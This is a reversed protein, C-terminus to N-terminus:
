QKNLYFYMTMARLTGKLESDQNSTLASNAAAVCAADTSAMRGNEKLEVLMKTATISKFMLQTKRSVRCFTSGNASTPVTINETEEDELIASKGDPSYNLINTIFANKPRGKFDDRSVFDWPTLSQWNFRFERQCGGGSRDQARWYANAYCRYGALIRATSSSGASACTDGQNLIVEPKGLYQNSTKSLPTTSPNGGSDTFEGGINTCVLDM